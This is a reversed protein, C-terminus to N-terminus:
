ANQHFPLSLYVFLCYIGTFRDNKLKPELQLEPTLGSIPESYSARRLPGEQAFRVKNVGLDIDLSVIHSYIDICLATNFDRQFDFKVWNQITVRTIYRKGQDNRLISTLNLNRYLLSDM